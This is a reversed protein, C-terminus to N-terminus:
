RYGIILSSRIMSIFLIIKVTVTIVLILFLFVTICHQSPANNVLVPSKTERYYVHNDSLHYTDSGQSDESNFRM